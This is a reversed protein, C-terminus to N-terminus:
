VIPAYHSHPRRPLAHIRPGHPITQPTRIPMYKRERGALWLTKPPGAARSSMCLPRPANARGPLSRQSARLWHCPGHANAGHAHWRRTVRDPAYLSPQADAHTPRSPQRIPCRMHMHARLARKTGSGSRLDQTSRPLSRFGRACGVGAAGPRGSRGVIPFRRM